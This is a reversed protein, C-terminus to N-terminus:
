ERNEKNSKSRRLRKRTEKAVREGRKELISSLEQRKTPALANYSGDAAANLDALMDTETDYYRDGENLDNWAIRIAGLDARGTGAYRTEEAYFAALERLWERRISGQLNRPVQFKHKRCDSCYTRSPDAPARETSPRLILRHCGACIYVDRREALSQALSLWVAPLFGLGLDVTLQLDNQDV